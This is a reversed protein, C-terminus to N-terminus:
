EKENTTSPIYPNGNFADRLRTFADMDLSLTIFFGTKLDGDLTTKLSSDSQSYDFFIIGADFSLEPMADITLGVMPKINMLPSDIEKGHYAMPTVAGAILIGFRDGFKTYAGSGGQENETKKLHKDVNKSFYAKFGVHGFMDMDLNAGEGLYAVGFGAIPNMRTGASETESEEEEETSEVDEPNEEEVMTFLESASKSTMEENSEFNYDTSEFMNLTENYEVLETTYGDISNLLEELENQTEEMEEQLEGLKENAQKSKKADLDESIEEISANLSEIRDQLQEVEIVADTMMLAVDPQNMSVEPQRSVTLSSTSAYSIAYKYAENRKLITGVYMEFKGKDDTKAFFESGNITVKVLDNGGPAKGELWFGYGHPLTGVIEHGVVQKVQNPYQAMGISSFILLVIFLNAKM